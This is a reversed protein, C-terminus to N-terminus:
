TPGRQTNRYNSGDMLQYIIDWMNKFIWLALLSLFGGGLAIQGLRKKETVVLDAIFIAVIALVLLLEPVIYGVSQANSFNM